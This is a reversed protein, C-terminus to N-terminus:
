ENALCPGVKSFRFKHFSTERFYLSWNRNHSLVAALCLITWRISVKVRNCVYDFCCFCKYELLMINNAQNISAITTQMLYICCKQEGFWYQRFKISVAPVDRTEENKLNNYSLHKSSALHRNSVTQLYFVNREKKDKHIILQNKMKLVQLHRNVHGQVLDM